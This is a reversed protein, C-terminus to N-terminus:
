FHGLSLFHVRIVPHSVVATGVMDWGTPIGKKKKKKVLM